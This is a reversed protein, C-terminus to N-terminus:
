RVVALLAPESHNPWRGVVTHAGATDHERPPSVTRCVTIEHTGTDLVTCGETEHRTMTTFAPVETGPVGSGQAFTTVERPRREGGPEVEVEQAAQHGGTLALDLLAAAYVPDDCGCHVWREGLVSHQMRTVLKEELGPVPAGRYTLPVQLVPGSGARLLFTEMGVEGAPDDLRFAGLLHLEGGGAYWPQQPVWAALMEAKTPTLTARHLLAMDGHQGWRPGDTV